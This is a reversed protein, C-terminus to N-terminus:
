DAHKRSSPQIVSLHINKSICYQCSHTVLCSFLFVCIQVAVKTLVAMFVYHIGWSEVRVRVM